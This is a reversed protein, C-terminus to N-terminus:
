FVEGLNVFFGHSAYQGFGYDICLNTASYKNLKIRLGFGYGTKVDNFQTSLDTSFYEFNAFVVGGLLGNQTIGFRYENELYMMNRGRFRGQIYGRGTNYQDDWGTSPLMLYPPTNKSTTIWAFSWFAWVNKSDTPFKTYFRVDSQLSSWNENSGLTKFNPRFLINFYTGNEPNIQNLRSDYLFRFALGSVLEDTGLKLSLQNAVNRNLSDLAKINWFQDYFYGIGAYMDKGIEFMVTQHFKLSSFNITYGVNANSDVSIRRGGLGFVDSPYKLYKNDSIFNIKNGKTWIDATFPLITQNHESYTLSSTINSIKQDIHNSNYFALNSSVLGAFGTQLTYGAAPIFSFFYKQPKKESSDKISQNHKASNHKFLDRLDREKFYISDIQAQKQNAANDIQSIVQIAIICCILVLYIKKM